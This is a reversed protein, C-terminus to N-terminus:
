VKENRSIVEQYVNLTKATINKWGFIEAHKRIKARNWEKELAILIKEALCEPDRSPCLLGYDESTIIEESGGNYTSVIPKGCAMAEINVVGFNEVISPLLFVDAANMWLPIQSHPKFGVLHVFDNLGNTSILQKLKEKLYGDGIIYLEVDRRVRVVKKMATIGYEFGKKEVLNGVSLLIKKDQPIGLRERAESTSMPFFKELDVGNPIYWLKTEDIGMEKLLDYCKKSVNIIADTQHWFDLANIKNFFEVRSKHLAHTTVVIPIGLNRKLRYAVFGSPWTFHAHIIDFRFREQFHKFYLKSIKDPLSRNRNDPTFYILDLVHVSVNDPTDTMDILKERTFHRVHEFFGGLPIYKSLESLKNHHVVVHVEDVHRSIHDIHEKVFFRYFPAIVLLKM